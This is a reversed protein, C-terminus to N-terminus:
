GEHMLYLYYYYIVIETLYMIYFQFLITMTWTNNENIIVHKMYLFVGLEKFRHTIRTKIREQSCSFIRLAMDWPTPPWSFTDTFSVDKVLIIKKIFFFMVVTTVLQQKKYTIFDHTIFKIKPVHGQM